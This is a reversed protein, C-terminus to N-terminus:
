VPKMLRARLSEAKRPAAVWFSIGGIIFAAMSILFAINYSKFVDYIYGGLWPGIAGGFGSGTLLLAMLTSINRGRFIDATGVIMVPSFIGTAFGSCVSFVYLLWLQSADRVSMLAVLGGVALVVSFTLAWERGIKDSIFSCLQGAISVMGFLAFASTALLSSFGADEAFKVQHALIMYNGMGWFCFEAFVLLWLQYTGLATRLTWDREPPQAGKVEGASPEGAGYAVMGKDEPRHYFFLLYLPLLVVIVLGGMVLFSVQWQWRSIVAEVMMTYMFSLGGGIQGLGVALGRWKGFWNIITPHLVPSGCFAAGIPLLVGFLLYFHWLQSAFYCTATSVSVIFLGLVAVTRPKWRDVLLGAVPSALGYVFINLSLMIATSGRYWGFYDLVPAFFVSFSLRIGYILMMAIIMLGIIYWGFFIRPQKTQSVSPQM